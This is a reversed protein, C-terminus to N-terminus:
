FAYAEEGHLARDLGEEEEKADVSVNMVAKLAKLIVFTVVFAYAAAILTALINDDTNM